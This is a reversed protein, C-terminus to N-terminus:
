LSETLIACYYLGLDIDLCLKKSLSYNLISKQAYNLLTVSGTPRYAHISAM